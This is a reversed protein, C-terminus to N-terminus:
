FGWGLGGTVLWRDKDEPHSLSRLLGLRFNVQAVAANVEVGAFTQDAPEVPADGWTRLLTAKAGLGVYVRRLYSANRGKEGM